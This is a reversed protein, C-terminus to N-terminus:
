WLQIVSLRVVPLSVSGILELVVGVWVAAPCSPATASTEPSPKSVGVGKQSLTTVPRNGNGCVQRVTNINSM